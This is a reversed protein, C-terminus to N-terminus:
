LNVDANSETALFLVIEEYGLVAAIQLPTMCNKFAEIFYKEDLSEADDNGDEEAKVLEGNHLDAIAGAEIL